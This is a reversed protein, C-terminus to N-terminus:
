RLEAEGRPAKSNAVPYLSSRCGNHLLFLWVTGPLQCGLAGRSWALLPPYTGDRHRSWNQSVHSLKELPDGPPIIELQGCPLWSPSWDKSCSDMRTKTFNRLGARENGLMAKGFPSGTLLLSKDWARNLCWHLWFTDTLPRTNWFWLSSFWLKMPLYLIQQSTMSFNLLFTLKAQNSGPCVKEFDPGMEEGEMKVQTGRHSLPNLIQRQWQKLKSPQQQPAPKIGPGWVEAHWSCLGFFTIWAWKWFSPFYLFNYLHM